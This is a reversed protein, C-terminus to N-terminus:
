VDLVEKVVDQDKFPYKVGKIEQYDEHGKGAILVVDGEKANQLAFNIAEKRDKQVFVKQKQEIGKLIDEIIAEPEEWRPNDSTIVVFDAWKEAVKGMLPRKTKDRNGGAGFVVWLKGKTLRRATILVKELADPTHAYDVIALKGGKFFTEFRGPVIVREVGQQITEADLGFLFGVLIGLSLNYAQFEGRLNSFFKYTRGKWELTLKSGEISTEFDIIKLNGERGYTIAKGKLEELIRRGYEDDINILSYEQPYEVFLRLKARFYNEMSGHYDLHDQSLNTFATIFFKTGWVRRQDLAHSSVECAVAEAGDELMQKLTRHWQIPDPTTRGEYEYIKDKFRYYITGILGTPIGGANLVAEVIHSSTTKGNTGTIGVVKLRESPRGFFENALEGLLKRTDEVKIIREDKVGVDREVFVLSAGRSLAEQVFNHGDTSSGKIAVFVWGEQVEKSNQTIGKIKSLEM